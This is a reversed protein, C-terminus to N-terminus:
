SVTTLVTGALVVAAWLIMSAMAAGRLRRWRPDGVDIEGGVRLARETRMLRYGNGILLAVLTAKTWFVASTAFTQVDATFLLVGSVALAGLGILVPRHVAALDDLLQRRREPAGRAARLAARDAAVAFGGGFLLAALHVYTVAASITKSNSFMSQWPALLHALAHLSGQV